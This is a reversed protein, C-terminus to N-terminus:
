LTAYEPVPIIKLILYGLFGGEVEEGEQAIVGRFIAGVRSGNKYGDALWPTVKIKVVVRRSPHGYVSSKKGEGYQWTGPSPM